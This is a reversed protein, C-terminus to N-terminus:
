RQLRTEMAKRMLSMQRNLSWPPITVTSLNLPRCGGTCAMWFGNVLAQVDKQGKMQVIALNKSDPRSWEVICEDSLRWTKVAEEEKASSKVDTLTVAVKSPCISSSENLPPTQISGLEFLTSTAEVPQSSFCDMTKTQFSLTFKDFYGTQFKNFLYQPM